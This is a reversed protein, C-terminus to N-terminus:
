NGNNRNGGRFKMIEQIPLVIISIAGVIAFSLLVSSLMNSKMLEITMESKIITNFNQFIFVIISCALGVILPMLKGIMKIKFIKNIRKKRFGYLIFLMLGGECYMLFGLLLLLSSKIVKELGADKIKEEIDVDM